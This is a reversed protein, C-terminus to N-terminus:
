HKKVRLQQLDSVEPFDGEQATVRGVWLWGLLIEMQEESTIKRLETDCSRM